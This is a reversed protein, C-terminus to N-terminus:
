NARVTPLPKTQSFLLNANQKIYWSLNTHIYPMTYCLVCRPMSSHLHLTKSHTIPKFWIDSGFHNSQHSVQYVDDVSRDTSFVQEDNVWNYLICFIVTYVIGMLINLFVVAVFLLIPKMNICYARTPRKICHNRGNFDRTMYFIFM